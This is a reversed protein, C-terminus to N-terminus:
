VWPCFLLLTEAAKGLLGQRAPCQQDGDDGAGAPAPLPLQPQAAEVGQGLLGQPAVSCLFVNWKKVKSWGFM